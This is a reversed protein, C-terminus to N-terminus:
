DGGGEGAKVMRKARIKSEIQVSQMGRLESEIKLNTLNVEAAARTAPNKDKRGMGAIPSSTSNEKYKSEHRQRTARKRAKSV